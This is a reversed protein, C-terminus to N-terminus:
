GVVYAGLTFILFPCVLFSFRHFTCCTFCCRHKYKSRKSHPRRTAMNHPLKGITSWLRLVPSCTLNWVDYWFFLYLLVLWCNSIYTWLMKYGLMIGLAYPFFKTWTIVSALMICHWFFIYEITLLQLKIVNMMIVHMVFYPFACMCYSSNLMNWKKRVFCYTLTFKLYMSGPYLLSITLKLCKGVPYPLQFLLWYVNIV